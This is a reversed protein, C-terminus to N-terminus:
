GVSRPRPSGIPLAGRDCDSIGPPRLAAGRADHQLRGAVGGHPQLLLYRFGPQERIAV